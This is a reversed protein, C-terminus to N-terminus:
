HGLIAVQVKAQGSCADKEVRAVEYSATQPSYYREALRDEERHSRNACAETAIEQVHELEDEAVKANYAGSEVTDVEGHKGNGYQFVAVHLM